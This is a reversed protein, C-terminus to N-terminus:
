YCVGGSCHARLIVNFRAIVIPLRLEDLNNALAVLNYDLHVYSYVGKKICIWRKYSMKFAVIFHLQNSNQNAM